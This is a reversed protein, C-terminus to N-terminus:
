PAIGGDTIQWSFDNILRDRAAIVNALNSYKSNGANFTLAPNASSSLSAWGLLLNDYNSTSLTVNTFM